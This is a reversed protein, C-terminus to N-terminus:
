LIFSMPSKNVFYFFYFVSMHICGLTFFFVSWSNNGLELSIKVLLISTKCNFYVYIELNCGLLVESCSEVIQKLNSPSNEYSIRWTFWTQSKLSWRSSKNEVTSHHLSQLKLRQDGISTGNKLNAKIFRTNPSINLNLPKIKKICLM